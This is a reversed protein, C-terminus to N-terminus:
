RDPLFVVSAAWLVCLFHLLMRLQLFCFVYSWHLFSSPPFFSLSPRLSVTTATGTLSDEPSM